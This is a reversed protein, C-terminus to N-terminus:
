IKLKFNKIEFPNIRFSVKSGDAKVPVDNREILDCEAASKIESFFELTVDAASGTKEVMRVIYADEDECKKVAELTVNEASLSIFSNEKAGKGITSLEVTKLPNNLELGRTLTKADQWKDKHPYISYTFYHDGLDSEPDPNLPGKLLTVMMRRKDVEFGYKCDNLISVGYDSDSMDIFNHATVEFKAKDYPNYRYNASEITAYAIDRTFKRANLDVDFGVKLLKQREVWNIYTDFDIRDLDNYIIINQRIKSKLISKSITISTFVDGEVIKEVVGPSTEFERDVYTAVIDWAEYHGPIDEYLRFVNGKGDLIERGNIKDFISILEAESNLVLRFRSNEISSGKCTREHPQSAPKTYYVKYGVAPVDKAIFVLVKEGNLKTYSQAAIRQGKDDFIDVDLYPLEVKSTASVALSNFM